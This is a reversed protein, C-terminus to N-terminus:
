PRVATPVGELRAVGAKRVGVLRLEDVFSDVASAEIPQSLNVFQVPKGPLSDSQIKADVYAHGSADACYFRMSVGGGASQSGFAGWVVERTDSPDNPFGKPQAAAEELKGIGVYVEATGGFAGNWASVRVQLLDSDKYIVEFQFGIDM